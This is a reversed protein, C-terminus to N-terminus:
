HGAGTAELYYRYGELESEVVTEVTILKPQDKLFGDRALPAHGILVTLKGTDIATPVAEFSEAYSRLHVSWEDVVLVKSITYDGGPGASAYVGGAVVDTGRKRGSAGRALVVLANIIPRLM